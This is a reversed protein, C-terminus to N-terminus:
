PKMEQEIHALSFKIMEIEGPAHIKAVMLAKELWEKGKKLDGIDLYNYAIKEIALVYNPDLELAKHAADFSGKKDGRIWRYQSLLLWSNAENPHKELQMLAQKEQKRFQYNKIVGPIQSGITIGIALIIFHTLFSKKFRLKM